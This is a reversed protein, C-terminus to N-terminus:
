AAHGALALLVGEADFVALYSLDLADQRLLRDVLPRLARAGAGARLGERFDVAALDGVYAHNLRNQLRVGQGLCYGGLLLLALGLCLALAPVMFQQRSARPDSM